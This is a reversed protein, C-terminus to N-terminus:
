QAARTVDARVAAANEAHSRLVCPHTPSPRDHQVCGACRGAGDDRHAALIREGMGREALILTVLPEIM